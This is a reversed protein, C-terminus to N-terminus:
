SFKHVKYLPPFLDRITVRFDGPFTSQILAKTRMKYLSSGGFNYLFSNPVSDSSHHRLPQSYFIINKICKIYLFFLDGSAFIAMGRPFRVSMDNPLPKPGKKHLSSGLFNYLFSNAVSDSLHHKFPLSYFITNKLKESKMFLVFRRDFFVVLQHPRRAIM